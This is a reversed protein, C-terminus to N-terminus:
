GQLAADSARDGELLPPLRGRDGSDMWFGRVFSVTHAPKEADDCDNDAPPCGMIFSGPPIWLYRQGDGANVRIEGPQSASQLWFIMTALVIM